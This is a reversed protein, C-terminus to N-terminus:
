ISNIKCLINPNNIVNFFEQLIDEPIKVNHEVLTIYFQVLSPIKLPEGKNINNSYLSFQKTNTFYAIYGIYFLSRDHHPKPVGINLCIMTGSYEISYTTNKTEFYKYRTFMQDLNNIEEKSM